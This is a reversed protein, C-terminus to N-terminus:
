LSEDRQEVTWSVHRKEAETRLLQGLERIEGISNGDFEIDRGMARAVYVTNKIKPVLLSAAGKLVPPRELIVIEKFGSVEEWLVGTVAGRVIRCFGREYIIAGGKLLGKSLRALFAGAGILALGIVSFAIVAFWCMGKKASFPLNWGAAWAAHVFFIIAWLGGAIMVASLIFGAIVNAMSPKFVRVPNGLNPVTSPGQELSDM